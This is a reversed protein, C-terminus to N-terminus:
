EGLYARRVQANEGLEAATGTLVVAGTELV